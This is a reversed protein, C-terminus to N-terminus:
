IRSQLTKLRVVKVFIALFQNPSLLDDVVSMRVFGKLIMFDSMVCFFTIMQFSVLITHTFIKILCLAKNNGAGFIESQIVATMM